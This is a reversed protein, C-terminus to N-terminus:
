TAHTADAKLAQLSSKIEQELDASIFVSSSIFGDIVAVFDERGPAHEFLALARDIERRIEAQSELAHNFQVDCAPIPRPYDRIAADISDRREGLAREIRAVLDLEVNREMTNGFKHVRRGPNIWTITTM